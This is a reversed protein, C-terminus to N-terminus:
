GKARLWAEFAAWAGLAGLGICAFAGAAQAAELYAIQGDQWSSKTHDTRKLECVFSPAAPIIIDVAGKTQGEMQVKRMAAFQGDRLQGENRPHLAIAGWTQSYESRLRNFFSTQEVHEQPCKGRFSQDGYVPISALFKM